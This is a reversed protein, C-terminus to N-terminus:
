SINCSKLNFKKLFCCLFEFWIFSTSWSWNKRANIFISNCRREFGFEKLHFRQWILKQGRTSDANRCPWRIKFIKKRIWNSYFRKLYVLDIQTRFHIFNHKVFSLSIKKNHLSKRDRSNLASFKDKKKDHRWSASCFPSKNNEDISWM